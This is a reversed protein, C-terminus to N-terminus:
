ASLLWIHLTWHTGNVELDSVAVRDFNIVTGLTAADPEVASFEVLDDRTGALSGGTPRMLLVVCLFEKVALAVHVLVRPAFAMTAPGKQCIQKVKILGLAYPM